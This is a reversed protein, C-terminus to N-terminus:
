QRAARDSDAWSSLGPMAEVTYSSDELEKLQFQSYRIRTVRGPATGDVVNLETPRMQGLFGQFKGYYVTKLLGGNSSLCDIKVPLKSKADVWLHLTPYLANRSRGTLTLKNAPVSAGTMDVVPEDGNLRPTYNEELDFHTVDALSADGMLRQQTSIKVPRDAGPDYVWLTEDIRLLVKGREGEPLLILSIVRPGRDRSSVRIYSRLTMSGTLSRNRYTDVKSLISFSNKPKLSTAVRRMISDADNQAHVTAPFSLSGVAALALLTPLLFRPTRM